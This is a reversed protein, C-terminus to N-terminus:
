QRLSSRLAALTQPAHRRLCWEGVVASADSLMAFIPAAKRVSWSLAVVGLWVLIREPWAAPEEQDFLPRERSGDTGYSILVRGAYLVGSTLIVLKLISTFLEALEPAVM